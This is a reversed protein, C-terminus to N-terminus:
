IGKSLSNLHEQVSLYQSALWEDFGLDFDPNYQGELDEPHALLKQDIALNEAEATLDMVSDHHLCAVM